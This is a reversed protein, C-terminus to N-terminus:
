LLIIISKSLVPQNFQTKLHRHSQSRYGLKVVTNPEKSYKKIVDFCTNKDRNSYGLSKSPYLHSFLVYASCM